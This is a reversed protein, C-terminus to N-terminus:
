PATASHSDVVPDRQALWDAFTLEQPLNPEITPRTDDESIGVEYTTAVGVPIASYTLSFDRTNGWGTPCGGMAEGSVDVRAHDALRAVLLSAASFTNRGTAVELHHDDAADLWDEFLSTMQDVVHVEGGTNHRLDLLVQTVKQDALAAQLDGTQAPLIENYQVYLSGDPLRQWWLREDMRSLYLVDPNAPLLLGYPGAWDNYDSMEIPVVQVESQTGDTDTLQVPVTDGLTVGLGRLVEPMLLYRPMLLRVTQDNDRPVIPDILKILEATPRGAIQDVRRGVLDQYPPLADVIYVDDGFLWLRLPLSDLPYGGGGWVYAGTHADCGRASVMAALSMIGVMLTDNSLEPVRTSLDNAASELETLSVQTELEPHM